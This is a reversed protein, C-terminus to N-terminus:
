ETGCHVIRVVAARGDTRFPAGQANVGKLQSGNLYRYGELSACGTAILELVILDREMDINEEIRHTIVGKWPKVVIGIDENASGVWLTNDKKASWLRAHHRERANRGPRQVGFDESRGFLYQSSMPGNRYHIAFASAFVEGTVNFFSRSSAIRWHAKKFVQLIDFRNGRFVLNVPDALGGQASSLTRAPLPPLVIFDAVDPPECVAPRKFQLASTTEIIGADGAQISVNPHPRALYFAASALGFPAAAIGVVGALLVGFGGMAAAAVPSYGDGEFAGHSVSSTSYRWELSKLNSPFPTSRYENVMFVDDFTIRMRSRKGFWGGSREEVTRGRLVSGAPILVCHGDSFVELTRAELPRGAKGSNAHIDNLFQARLKAGKPIQILQPPEAARASFIVLLIVAGLLARLTISRPDM